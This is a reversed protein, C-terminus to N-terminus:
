LANRVCELIKRIALSENLVIKNGKKVGNKLKLYVLSHM